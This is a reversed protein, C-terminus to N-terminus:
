FLGQHQSLSFAPPSPSWLPHSPQIADGVQHVHIQHVHLGHPQLSNSVVSHTFQFSCGRGFLLSSFTMERHAKPAFSLIQHIALRGAWNNQTQWPEQNWRFQPASSYVLSHTLHTLDYKRTDIVKQVCVLFPLPPPWLGSSLLHSM